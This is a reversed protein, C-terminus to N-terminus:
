DKNIEIIIAGMKGASSDIFLLIHATWQLFIVQLEFAKVILSQEFVILLFFLVLVSFATIKKVILTLGLMVNNYIKVAPM